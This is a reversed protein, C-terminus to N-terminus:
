PHRDEIGIPVLRFQWDIETTGPVEFQLPAPVANMYIEGDSYRFPHSPYDLKWEGPPLGHLRLPFGPRVPIQVQLEVIGNGLAPRKLTATAEPLTLLLDESLTDEVVEQQGTVLSARIEVPPFQYSKMGYEETYMSSLNFQGFSFHFNNDGQTVGVVQYVVPILNCLEFRQHGPELLTRGVYQYDTMHFGCNVMALDVWSKEGDFATPKPLQGLISEPRVSRIGFTQTAATLLFFEAGWDGDIRTVRGGQTVWNLCRPTRTPHDMTWSWKHWAPVAPWEMIRQNLNIKKALPFRVMSVELQHADMNSPLAFQEKMLNRMTPALRQLDALEWNLGSINPILHKASSSTWDIDSTEFIKPVETGDVFDFGPHLQIVANEQGEMLGEIFFRIGGRELQAISFIQDELKFSNPNPSSNRWRECDLGVVM